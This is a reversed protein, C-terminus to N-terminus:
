GTRTRFRHPFERLRRKGFSFHDSRCSKFRRRRPGFGLLHPNVVNGMTADQASTMGRGTRTNGKTQLCRRADIPLPRFSFNHPSTRNHPIQASCSHAPVTHPIQATFTGGARGRYWPKGADASARFAGGVRRACFGSHHCERAGFRRAYAAGTRPCGWPFGARGHQKWESAGHRFDATRARDAPRITACRGRGQAAAITCVTRPVSPLDAKPSTQLAAPSRAKRAGAPCLAAERTFFLAM